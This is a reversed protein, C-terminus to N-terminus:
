GDLKTAGPGHSLAVGPREIRNMSSRVRTPSRVFACQREIRTFAQLLLTVNWISGLNQATTNFM